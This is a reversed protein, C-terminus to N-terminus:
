RRSMSSRPVGLRRGAETFSGAEVVRVFILVDNLDAELM